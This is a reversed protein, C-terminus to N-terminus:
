RRFEAIAAMLRGFVGFVGSVLSVGVIFSFIYPILESLTEPPAASLDILGFFEAVIDAM